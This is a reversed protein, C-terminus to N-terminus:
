HSSNLRTSKRDPVVLLTLMPVRPPENVAGSSAPAPEPTMVLVLILLMVDVPRTDVPLMEPMDTPVVAEPEDIVAAPRPVALLMLMELCEPLRETLFSLVGPDPASVLTVIPVSVM